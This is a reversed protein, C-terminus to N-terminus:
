FLFKVDVQATVKLQGPQLNTSAKATTYTQYVVPATDSKEDIEVPIPMVNLKMTAALKQAKAYADRLAMSLAQQYIADQDALAFEADSVRNVGNQVATDIVMGARSIDGITIQIAHTVEFGRFQQVGDVFDYQPYINFATTRINEQEIGMNLLAQIVQNMSQSNEQQAAALEMNETVVQLEVTVIDPEASLSATGSVSMVRQEHM